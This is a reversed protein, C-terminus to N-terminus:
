SLCLNEIEQRQAITGHQLWGFSKDIGYCPDVSSCTGDVTPGDGLSM